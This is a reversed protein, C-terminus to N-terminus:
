MKYFNQNLNNQWFNKSYQPHTKKLDFVRNSMDWSHKTQNIHFWFSTCRNSELHVIHGQGKVEGTVNVKSKELDFKLIATDWANNKKISTFCFSLLNILYQASQITKEKLWVWSGSRTTSNSGQLEYKSGLHTVYSLIRGEVLEGSGPALLRKRPMPMIRLLRFLTIPPPPPTPPIPPTNPTFDSMLRHLAFTQKKWTEGLCDADPSISM